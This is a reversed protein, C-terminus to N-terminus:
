AGAGWSALDVVTALMAGGGVLMAVLVLGAVVVAVASRLSHDEHERPVFSPRVVAPLSTHAAM